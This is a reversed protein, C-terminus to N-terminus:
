TLLGFIRNRRERISRRGSELIVVRLIREVRAGDLAALIQVIASLFFSIPGSRARPTERVLSM